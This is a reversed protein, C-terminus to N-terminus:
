DDTNQDAQFTIQFNEASSPKLVLPLGAVILVAADCSQAVAQNLRGQADRFRRALANEPVIGFGVENSVLMVPGRLAPIADALRISEAAPDGGGLMINTLWLTLCDVVVVTDPAAEAALCDVLALPEEVTRWRGDRESKHRQVRDLMEDDWVTATALYVPRLMSREALTLAYGTKGSRAGGLVLCTRM